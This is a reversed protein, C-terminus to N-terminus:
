VGPRPDSRPTSQPRVVLLTMLAVSAATLSGVQEQSLEFGYAAVLTAGTTIVGTLLTPAVPRVKVAIWASAAAALFAEIAAAQEVTVFDAGFAVLVALLSAVAGIIVAPERGFIVGVTPKAVDSM